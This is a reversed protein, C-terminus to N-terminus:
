LELGQEIPDPLGEHEPLDVTGLGGLLHDVLQARRDGSADAEPDSESRDTSAPLPAACRSRETVCAERCGKDCHNAYPTDRWTPM